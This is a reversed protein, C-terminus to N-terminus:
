KSGLMGQKLGTDVPKPGLWVSWLAQMFDAGEITGRVAGKISVETGKGPLYTLVIQEGELLDQDFWASFRGLREALQQQGAGANAAFGERWAERIKEAEVKSHVFHLLTRKPEDAAVAAAADGTPTALYLAGLYVSVFFKTRVGVGNLRCPRGGLDVTDAFSVGKVTAAFADGAPGSVAATLLLPLVLSMIRRM